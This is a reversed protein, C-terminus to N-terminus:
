RIEHFKACMIKTGIRLVAHVLNEFNKKYFKQRIKPIKCKSKTEATAAVSSNIGVPRVLKDKTVSEEQKTRVSAKRPVSHGKIHQHAALFM